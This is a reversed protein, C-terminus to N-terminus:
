TQTPVVQPELLIRMERSRKDCWANLPNSNRPVWRWEFRIGGTEFYEIADWLCENASRSYLKQGAKVTIQSDSVCGVSDGRALSATKQIMWLAHVFPFLESFNNTSHSLASRIEHTEDTRRDWILAACGGSKSPVTGSGDAVIIVDLEPLSLSQALDRFASPLYESM